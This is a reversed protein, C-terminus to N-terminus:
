NYEVTQSQFFLFVFSCNLFLVYSISTISVFHLCFCMKIITISIHIYNYGSFYHSFVLLFLIIINLYSSKTLNKTLYEHMKCTCVNNKKVIKSTCIYAYSKIKVIKFTCVMKCKLCIVYALTAQSFSKSLCSFLLLTIIYM